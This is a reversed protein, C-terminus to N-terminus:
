EVLSGVACGGFKELTGKGTDLVRHALALQVHEPCEGVRVVGPVSELVAIRGTSSPSANFPSFSRRERKPASRALASSVWSARWQVVEVRQDCSRPDGPLSHEVQEGVGAASPVLVPNIVRDRVEVTGKLCEGLHPQALSVVDRVGAM